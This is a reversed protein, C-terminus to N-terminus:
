LTLLSCRMREWLEESSLADTRVPSRQLLLLTRQEWLTVSVPLLWPSWELLVYLLSALPLEASSICCVGSQSPFKWDWVSIARADKSHTEWLMGTWILLTSQLLQGWWKGTSQNADSHGSLMHVCDRESSIPSSSARGSLISNVALLQGSGCRTSELTLLCVLWLTIDSGRPCTSHLTLDM